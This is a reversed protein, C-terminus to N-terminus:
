KVPPQQAALEREVIRRYEEFGGELSKVTGNGCVWLEKCIMRILKEDHSVLIVGGAFDNLAKGLAEITEIDLHNTPEDLVLFNPASGALIAFALRSKQGGSM